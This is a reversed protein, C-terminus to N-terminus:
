VGFCRKLEFLLSDAEFFGLDMDMNSLCPQLDKGLVEEQIDLSSLYFPLGEEPKGLATYMGGVHDLIGDVLPHLSDIGVKELIKRIQVVSNDLDGGLWLIGVESSFLKFLVSM